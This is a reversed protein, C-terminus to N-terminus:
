HRRAYFYSRGSEDWTFIERDRKLWYYNMLAWDGSVGATHWLLVTLWLVSWAPFVIALLIAVPTIVVFPALAVFFFVGRSAVFREAVVYAGLYRWIMKWRIERAGAMRYALAHLGEHIPLVIVFMVVFGLAFQALATLWRLDRVIVTAVIAGLAILSLIHHLRTIWSTKEFFYRAAFTLLDDYHLEDL